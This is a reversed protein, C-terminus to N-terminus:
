LLFFQFSSRVGPDKKRSVALFQRNTNDANNSVSLLEVFALHDVAQIGLSEFRDRHSELGHEALWDASAVSAGLLAVVLASRAVVVFAMERPASSARM